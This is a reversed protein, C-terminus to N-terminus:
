SLAISPIGKDPWDALRFVALWMSEPVTDSVLQERADGLARM